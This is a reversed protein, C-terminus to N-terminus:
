AASVSVKRHSQRLRDTIVALTAVFLATGVAILAVQWGAMGATVIGHPPAPHPTLTPSSGSGGPRVILAFASPSCLVAGILSAGVAIMVGAGHRVLRNNSM